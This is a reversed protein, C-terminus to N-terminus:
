ENSYKIKEVFNIQVPLYNKNKLNSDFKDKILIDKIEKYEKSNILTELNEISNSHDIENILNYELETYELPSKYEYFGEMIIIKIAEIDNMM